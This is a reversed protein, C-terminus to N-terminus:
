AARRFWRKRQSRPNKIEAAGEHALRECILAVRMWGIGHDLGLRDAIETPTSWRDDLELLVAARLQALTPRRSM